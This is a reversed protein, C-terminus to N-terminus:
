TSLNGTFIVRVELLCYTDNKGLFDTSKLGEMKKLVVQLMGCPPAALGGGEMLDVKFQNPFLMM